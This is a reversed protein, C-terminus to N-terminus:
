DSHRRFFIKSFYKGYKRHLFPRHFVWLTAADLHFLVINEIVCISNQKGLTSMIINNYLLWKETDAPGCSLTANCGIGNGM